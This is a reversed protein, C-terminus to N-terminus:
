ARDLAQLMELLDEPAHVPIKAKAFGKRDRTVVAEAGAALAAEHLVADEYDSADLRLARELLPGDVPAVEFLALLSTIYGSSVKPGHARTALYHLTTVTTAGVLGQLRGRDVRSILRAAPLAHPERDLLVDMVVNTDFFVKV